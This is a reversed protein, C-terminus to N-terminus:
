FEQVSAVKAKKLETMIKYKDSINTIGFIDQLFQDEDDEM